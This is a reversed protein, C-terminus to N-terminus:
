IKFNKLVKRCLCGKIKHKILKERRNGNCKKSNSAAKQNKVSILKEPSNEQPM